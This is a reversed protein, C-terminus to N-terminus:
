MRRVFPSLYRDYQSVIGCKQRATQRGSHILLSVFIHMPDFRCSMAVAKPLGLIESAGSILKARAVALVEFPTLDDADSISSSSVRHLLSM